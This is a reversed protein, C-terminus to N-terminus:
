IRINQMAILLCICVFITVHMYVRLCMYMYICEHLTVRQSPIAIRLSVLVPPHFVLGPLFLRKMFSLTQKINLWSFNRPKPECIGKATGMRRVNEIAFFFGLGLTLTEMPHAIVRGGLPFRKSVAATSPFIKDPKPDIQGKQLKCEPKKGTGMAACIGPSGWM